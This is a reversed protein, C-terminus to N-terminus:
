SVMNTRLAIWVAGTRMRMWKMMSWNSSMWQSKGCDLISHCLMKSKGLFGLLHDWAGSPSGRARATCPQQPCRSRPSNKNLDTIDELIVWRWRPNTSFPLPLCLLFWTSGIRREWLCWKLVASWLPVHFLGSVNFSTENRHMCYIHM